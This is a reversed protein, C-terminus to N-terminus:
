KTIKLSTPIKINSSEWDDYDKIFSYQANICERMKNKDDKYAQSCGYIRSHEMKGKIKGGTRPNGLWKKIDSSIRKSWHASSSAYGDSSKRGYGRMEKWCNKDTTAKDWDKNSDSACGGNERSMLKTAGVLRNYDKLHDEMEREADTLAARRTEEAAAAAAAAAARRRNQMARRQAAQQQQQQQQQQQRPSPRSSRVAWSRSSSRSSRPRSRMNSRRMSNFHEKLNDQSLTLLMIALLFFTFPVVPIKIKRFQKLFGLKM